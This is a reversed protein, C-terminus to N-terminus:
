LQRLVAQMSNILSQNVSASPILYVDFDFAELCHSQIRNFYPILVNM